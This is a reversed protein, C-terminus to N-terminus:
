LRVCIVTMNDHSAGNTVEGKVIKDLLYECADAMGNGKEIERLLLKCVESTKTTEWIGDCGLVMMQSANTLFREFVDPLSTMPQKELPLNPNNKFGLDGIARSMNIRGGIRGGQVFSGGKYIRESEQPDEPVHDRTLLMAKNDELLVCRSDGANAVYLMSKVILAVCGTCGPIEELDLDTGALAKLQKMGEPTQLLKDMQLFTDTLAQRYNGKKFAPCALLENVFNKRVFEATEWGGHGDFVGFIHTKPAIEFKVIHADEMTPRYGQMSSVGYSMHGHKEEFSKKATNPKNM